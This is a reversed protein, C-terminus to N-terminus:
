LTDGPELDECFRQADTENPSVSLEVRDENEVVYLARDMDLTYARWNGGRTGYEKIYTM